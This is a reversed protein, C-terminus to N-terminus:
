HSSRRSATHRVPYCWPPLPMAVYVIIGMCASVQLNRPQPVDVISWRYILRHILQQTTHLCRIPQRWQIDHETISLQPAQAVSTKACYASYAFLVTLCEFRRHCCIRTTYVIEHLFRPATRSLARTCDNGFHLARNSFVWRRAIATWVGFAQKLYLLCLWNMLHIVILGAILIQQPVAGAGSLNRRVRCCTSFFDQMCSHVFSSGNLWFSNAHRDKDPSTIHSNSDLLSHLLNHRCM